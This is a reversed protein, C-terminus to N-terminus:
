LHPPLQSLNRVTQRGGHECYGKFRVSLIILMKEMTRSETDVPRQIRGVKFKKGGITEM